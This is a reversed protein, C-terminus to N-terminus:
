RLIRQAIAVRKSGHKPDPKPGQALTEDPSLLVTYIGSACVM